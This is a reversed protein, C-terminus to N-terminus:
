HFKRLLLIEKAKALMWVAFSQVKCWNWKAKLERESTTTRDKDTAKKINTQLSFYIFNIESQESSKLTTAWCVRIPYDYQFFFFLFFFICVLWVNWGSLVATMKAWKSKAESLSCIFLPSLVQLLQLVFATFQLRFFQLSNFSTMVCILCQLRLCYFHWWLGFRIFLM